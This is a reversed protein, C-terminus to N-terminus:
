NDSGFNITLNSCKYFAFRKEMPALFNQTSVENTVSMQSAVEDDNHNGNGSDATDDDSQAISITAAKRKHQNGSSSNSTGSLSGVVSSFPENSTVTSSSTLAVNLALGVVPTENMGSSNIVSSFSENSTVTSSSTSAGNLASQIVNATRRKYGISSDIYRECVATSKHGTHRKLDEISAGANAYM